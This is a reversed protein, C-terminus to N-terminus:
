EPDLSVELELHDRATASPIAIAHFKNRVCVDADANGTSLAKASAKEGDLVIKLKTLKAKPHGDLCALLDLKRSRVATTLADTMAQEHSMGAKGTRPALPESPATIELQMWFASEPAPLKIASLASAVCDDYAPTGSRVRAHGDTWAFAQAASAKPGRKPACSAIKASVADLAQTIDLMRNATYAIRTATLQWKTNHADVLVPATSMRPPPLLESTQPAMLDVHGVLVIPAGLKDTIKGATLAKEICGDLKGAGHVHAASVKGARSVELWFLPSGTPPNAGTTCATLKAEFGALLVHDKPLEIGLAGEEVVRFGAAPEAFAPSTLLLLALAALRMTM